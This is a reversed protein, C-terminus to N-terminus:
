VDQSSDDDEVIIDDDAKKARPTSSRRPGAVVSERNLRLLALRQDIEEDTMGRIDEVSLEVRKVDTISPGDTASIKPAM